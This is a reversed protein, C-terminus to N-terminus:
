NISDAGIIDSKVVDVYQYLDILNHSVRLM